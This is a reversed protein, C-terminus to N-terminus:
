TGYYVSVVDYLEGFFNRDAGIRVFYLYKNATDICFVTLLDGSYGNQNRPILSYETAWGYECNSTDNVYVPITEKLKCFAQAHNHGVIMCALTGKAFSFNASVFVDTFGESITTYTYIKTLSTKEAYAKLIDAIVSDSMYGNNGIYTSHADVGGSTGLAGYHTNIVSNETTAPETSHQAVIVTYNKPVSNLTSVLWDIQEQQYFRGAGYYVWNSGNQADPYEYQNLIILRIKYTSFDYYGYGHSNYISADNLQGLFRNVSAELGNPNTAVAAANHMDHNGMTAFCPKEAKKFIPIYSNDMNSSQSSNEMDGLMIGADISAVGNLVDIANQLRAADGHLDSFMLLGLNRKTTGGRKWDTLSFVNEIHNKNKTITNETPTYSALAREIVTPLGKKLYFYGEPFDVRNCVRMYGNQPVVYEGSVTTTSNVGVVSAIRSSADKTSYLNFCAVSPQTTRLAYVLVDGTYVEFYDSTNHNASSFASGSANLGTSTYSLLDALNFFRQENESSLAKLNNLTKSVTEYNLYRKPNYTWGTSSQGGDRLTIQFYEGAFVTGKKVEGTTDIYSSASPGSFLRIIVYLTSPANSNISFDITREAKQINSSTAYNRAFFTKTDTNFDTSDTFIFSNIDNSIFNLDNKLETIQERVANGATAATTGDAKVRIDQVEAASPAGGSPAIINDIRTNLASDANTRASIEDTLDINMSAVAGQVYTLIAEYVSTDNSYTVGVPFASDEVLIAFNSSGVKKNNANVLVIEAVAVGSIAAMASKLTFSVKSENLTCTYPGFNAGDSRVGHVTATLNSTATFLEDGKVLTFEITEGVNGQSVHITVPASTKPILNLIRKQTIIAM